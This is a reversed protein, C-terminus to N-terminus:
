TYTSESFYVKGTEDLREAKLAIIDRTRTLHEHLQRQKEAPKHCRCNSNVLLERLETEMRTETHTGVTRYIIVVAFLATM